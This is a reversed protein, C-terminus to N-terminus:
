LPCKGRYPIFIGYSYYMLVRRSAEWNRVASLIEAGLPAGGRM